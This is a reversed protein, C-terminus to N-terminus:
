VNEFLIMIITLLWSAIIFKKEHFSWAIKKWMKEWNSYAYKQGAAQMSCIAECKTFFITAMETCYLLDCLIQITVKKIYQAATTLRLFAFSCPVNKGASFQLVQCIESHCLFFQLASACENEYLPHESHLEFEIKDWCGRMEGIM